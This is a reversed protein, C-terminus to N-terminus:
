ELLDAVHKARQGHAGQCLHRPQPNAKVPTACQPQGGGGEDDMALVM